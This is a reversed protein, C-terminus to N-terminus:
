RGLIVKVQDVYRFCADAAEVARKIDRCDLRQCNSPCPGSAEALRARFAEQDQNRNAECVARKAAESAVAEGMAVNAEQTEALEDKLAQIAALEQARRLEQRSSVSLYLWIPAGAFVLAFVAVFLWNRLNEM